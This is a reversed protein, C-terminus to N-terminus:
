AVVKAKSGGMGIVSGISAGISGLSTSFEAKIEARSSKGRFAKNYFPLTVWALGVMTIAAISLFLFPFLFEHETQSDANRVLPIMFNCTGDPEGTTGKSNCLLFEMPFFYFSCFLTALFAHWNVYSAPGAGSFWALFWPGLAMIYAFIFVRIDYEFFHFGAHLQVCTLAALIEPRIMVQVVRGNFGNGFDGNRVYIYGHGSKTQSRSQQWFGEFTILIMGLMAAASMMQDYDQVVQGDGTYHWLNRLMIVVCGIAITWLYALTIVATLLGKSGRNNAGILWVAPELGDTGNGSQLTTDAVDYGPPPSYKKGGGKPKGNQDVELTLGEPQVTNDGMTYFALWVFYTFALTGTMGLAWIARNHAYPLWTSDPPDIPHFMPQEYVAYVIIFAWFVMPVCLSKFMNFGYSSTWVSFTWAVLAGMVLTYVLMNSFIVGPTAAM